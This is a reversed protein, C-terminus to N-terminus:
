RADIAKDAQKVLSVLEDWEEKFFHLTMAGLELHYVMEGDPEQSVWAVYNSTEALTDTPIDDAM